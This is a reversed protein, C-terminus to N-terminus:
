NYLFKEGCILPGGGWTPISCIYKSLNTNDQNISLRKDPNEIPYNSESIKESVYEDINDKSSKKYILSNSKNFYNQNNILQLSNKENNIKNNNLILKNNQFSKIEKNFNHSLFYDSNLSCNSKKRSKNKKMGDNM